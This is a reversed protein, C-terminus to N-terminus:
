YYQNMMTNIEDANAAVFILGYIWPWLLAVASLILGVVGMAGQKKVIAMIGLVIGVISTIIALIYLLGMFSFVLSVIGLVLAAIALSKKQQEM